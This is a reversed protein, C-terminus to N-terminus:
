TVDASVIKVWRRKGLKIVDGEAVAVTEGTVKRGGVEMAGQRILRKAESRSDVMGTNVLLRAADVEGTPAVDGGGVAVDYRVRPVDDPSM